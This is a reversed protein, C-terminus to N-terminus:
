HLLGEIFFNHLNTGTRYALQDMLLAEGSNWTFLENTMALHLTACSTDLMPTMVKTHLYLM